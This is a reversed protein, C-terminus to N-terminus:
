MMLISIIINILMVSIYYQLAIVNAVTSFSFSFISTYSIQKFRTLTNVLNVRLIYKIMQLM